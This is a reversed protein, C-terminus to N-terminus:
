WKIHVDQLSLKVQRMRARNIQVDLFLHENATMEKDKYGSLIGVCRKWEKGSELYVVLRSNCEDVLYLGKPSESFNGGERGEEGRREWNGGVGGGKILFLTFSTPPQLPRRTFSSSRAGMSRMWAWKPSEKAFLDSDFDDGHVNISDDYKGLHNKYTYCCNTKFMAFFQSGDLEPGHYKEVTKKINKKVTALQIPQDYQVYAHVHHTCPVGKSQKEVVMAFQLVKKDKKFLQKLSETCEATINTLPRITTYYCKQALKEKDVPESM